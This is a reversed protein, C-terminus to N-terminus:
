LPHSMFDTPQEQPAHHCLELEKIRYDPLNISGEKWKPGEMTIATGAHMCSVRLSKSDNDGLVSGGFTKQPRKIEYAWSYREQWDSGREM